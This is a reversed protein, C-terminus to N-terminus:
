IVPFYLNFTAGQNSKGSATIFGGHVQMIKRCVALGIGSGSYESITHLRTFIKFVNENFKEDFGIGNDQLQLHYFSAGEHQVTGMYNLRIVPAIGQRSFKLANQILNIFLQRILVPIGQIVPLNKFEVLAKTNNIEESLEDKIKAIKEDLVVPVFGDHPQKLRSYATLDSILQQMRGASQNIKTFATLAVEPLHPEKDIVRSSFVQIKRLPEKLDHTSIWNINELEANSEKLQESLKRQMASEESLLILTVHKQLAYAFNAAATLAPASWEKAQCKIVEKWSEFSKRPSLGNEDKIIAKEPDGAWKVEELTEPNFWIISSHHLSSLSYFIIGSAVACTSADPYDNALKSTSYMVQRSSKAEAWTSLDRIIEDSPTKGNKYIVDDLMIAVGSANCLSLLQPQSVLKSLSARTADFSKNLLNELDDNVQKAIVYEEAAERVNIQSTLFHGQLRANIRTYHDIFKPSYHHCAILGWLRGEHLLSITLTAGVGMNRLYQVHIPSVGRLSANGLDLNKGPEENVTFL